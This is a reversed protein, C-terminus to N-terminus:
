AGLRALTTKGTQRAGLLVTVPSEKICVSIRKELRSRKILHQMNDNNMSIQLM